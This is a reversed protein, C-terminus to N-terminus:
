FPKEMHDISRPSSIRRCSNASRETRSKMPDYGGLRMALGTPTFVLYFLTALIIRSSIWGMVLGIRMWGHYLPDLTAPAIVAWITLLGAMIWPWLPSSVSLLWPILLGFLAVLMAATVLGFERLGAADREPIDDHQM